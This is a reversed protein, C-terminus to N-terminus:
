HPNNGGYRHPLLLLGINRYVEKRFCSPYRHRIVADSGRSAIRYLILYMMMLAVGVGALVHIDACQIQETTLYGEFRFTGFLNITFVAPLLSRRQPDAWEASTWGRHRVLYESLVILAM